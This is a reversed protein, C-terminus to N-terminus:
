VYIQIAQHQDTAMETFLAFDMRSVQQAEEVKVGNAGAADAEAQEEEM